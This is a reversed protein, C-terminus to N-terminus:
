LDQLPLGWPHSLRPPYHSRWPERHQGEANFLQTPTHTSLSISRRHANPSLEGQAPHELTRLHTPGTAPSGPIPASNMLVLAPVGSHRSGM